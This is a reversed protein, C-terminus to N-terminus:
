RLVPITKPIHLVPSLQPGTEPSATKSCTDKKLTQKKNLINNILTKSFTLFCRNSFLRSPNPFYATDNRRSNLGKIELQKRNTERTGTNSLVFFNCKGRRFQVTFCSKKM